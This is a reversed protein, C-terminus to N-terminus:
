FPPTTYGFYNSQPVGRSLFLGSFTLNTVTPVNTNLYFTLYSIEDTNYNPVYGNTFQPQQEVGDYIYNFVFDWRMNNITYNTKMSVWNGWINKKYQQMRIFLNSRSFMTNPIPYSEKYLEVILKRVNDRDYYVGSAVLGDPVLRTYFTSTKPSKKFTINYINANINSLEKWNLRNKGVLLNGDRNLFKSLSYFNHKLSFTSDQNIKVVDSYRRIVNEYEERTPANEIEDLFTNYIDELSEFNLTAKLNNFESITAEDKNNVKSMYNQLTEDDKFVLIGDEVNVNSTNSKQLQDDITSSSEKKCGVYILAILFILLKTVYIRKM